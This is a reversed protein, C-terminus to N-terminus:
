LKLMKTENIMRDVSYDQYIETIKTEVEGKTQYKSLQDSCAKKINEMLKPDIGIGKMVRIIPNPYDALLMRVLNGENELFFDRMEPPEGLLNFSIEFQWQSGKIDILFIPISELVLVGYFLKGKKWSKIEKRSLGSYFAAINFSAGSLISLIGEQQPKIPFPEGM